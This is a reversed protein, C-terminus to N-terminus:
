MDKNAIEQKNFDGGTKNIKLFFNGRVSLTTFWIQSSHGGM